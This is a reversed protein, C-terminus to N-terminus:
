WSRAARRKPGPSRPRRATTRLASSAQLRGFVFHLMDFFHVGINTDVGFSKRPDGKWSQAYWKGRSTIYTLEVDFCTDAPAAAVQERLRLIAGEWGVVVVQGGPAVTSRTKGPRVALLGVYM